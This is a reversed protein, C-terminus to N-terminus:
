MLSTVYCVYGEGEFCRRRREPLAIHFSVSMGKLRSLELRPGLGGLLPPPSVDGLSGGFGEVGERDPFGGGRVRMELHAHEVASDTRHLHEEVILWM